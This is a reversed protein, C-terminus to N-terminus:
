LTNSLSAVRATTEAAARDGHTGVCLAAIISNFVVAVVNCDTELDPLTNADM